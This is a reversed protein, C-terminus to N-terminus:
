ENLYADLGANRFSRCMRAIRIRMEGRTLGLRRATEAISQHMLLKCIQTDDEAFDRLAMALDIALDVSPEVGPRRHDVDGLRDDTNKSEAKHLADIRRYDRRHAVRHRLISAIQHDVIRQVFTNWGGRRRDFRDLRELVHCIIEQEIDNRDSSRLGYRGVLKGAKYRIMRSTQDDFSPREDQDM